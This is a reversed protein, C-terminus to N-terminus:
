VESAILAVTVTSCGDPRDVSAITRIETAPTANIMTITARALLLLLFSAHRPSVNSLKFGQRTSSGDKMAIALSGLHARVTKKRAALESPAKRQDQFIHYLYFAM